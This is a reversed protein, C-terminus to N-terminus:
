YIWEYWVSISYAHNTDFDGAVIYFYDPLISRWNTGNTWNNGADPGYTDLAIKDGTFGSYNYGEESLTPSGAGTNAPLANWFVDLPNQPVVWTILNTGGDTLNARTFVKLGKANKPRKILASKHYANGTYVSITMAEQIDGYIDEWASYGKVLYFNFAGGPGTGLLTDVPITLLSGGQVKIKYQTYPSSVFDAAQGTGLDVMEPEYTAYGDSVVPRGSKGSTYTSIDLGVTVWTEGDLPTGMSGGAVASGGGQIDRARSFINENDGNANEPNTTNENIYAIPFPSPLAVNVPLPNPISNLNGPGFEFPYEDLGYFIIATESLTDAIKVNGKKQKEKFRIGQRNVLGKTIKNRGDRITFTGAGGLIGIYNYDEPVQFDLEQGAIFPKDESPM